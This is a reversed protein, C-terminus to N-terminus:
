RWEIRTRTQYTTFLRAGCSSCKWEVARKEHISWQREWKLKWLNFRTEGTPLEYETYWSKYTARPNSHSCAADATIGVNVSEPSITKTIAAGSGFLTLAMTLATIKKIINKM